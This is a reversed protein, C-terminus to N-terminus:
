SPASAEWPEPWLYQQMRKTCLRIYGVKSRVAVAAPAVAVAAGAAAALCCAEAHLRCAKSVLDKGPVQNHVVEVWLDAPSAM